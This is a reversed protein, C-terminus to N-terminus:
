AICLAGSSSTVERGAAKKARDQWTMQLSLDGTGKSNMQDKGFKKSVIVTNDSFIYTIKLAISYINTSCKKNFIAFAM